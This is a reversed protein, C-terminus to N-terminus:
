PVRTLLYGHSPLSTLRAHTVAMEAKEKKQLQSNGGDLNWDRYEPLAAAAANKPGLFLFNEM